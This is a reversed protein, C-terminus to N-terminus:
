DFFLLDGADVIKPYSGSRTGLPSLVPILVLSRLM